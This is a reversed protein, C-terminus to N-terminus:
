PSLCHSAVQDLVAHHFVGGLKEMIRRAISLRLGQGKARVPDLRTFPTFLRAQAKPTIGPGQRLPKANGTAM